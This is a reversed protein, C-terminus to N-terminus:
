IAGMHVDEIAGVATLERALDFFAGVHSETTQALYKHSRMLAFAQPESLSRGSLSAIVDKNIIVYGQSM